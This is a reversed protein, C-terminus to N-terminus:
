LLTKTVNGSTSVAHNVAIGSSTTLTLLIDNYVLWIGRIWISSAERFSHFLFSYFLFIVIVMHCLFGGVNSFMIFHDASHVIRSLNQHRRRFTRMSGHFCGNKDVAKLFENNLRKFENFFVITLLLNVSLQFAWVPTILIYLCLMFLKLVFKTTGNISFLTGFPAMAFDFEGGTMFLLYWDLVAHLAILIWVIFTLMVAKKRIAEATAANVLIEHLVGDLRGSRCAIFCSIQMTACLVMHAMVTMKTILMADFRDSTSFTTALRAVNIWMLVLVCSSYIKLKNLRKSRKQQLGIEINEQKTDYSRLIKERLEPREFCENDHQNFYVGFLKMSRFLPSFSNFVPHVDAFTKDYLGTAEQDKSTSEKCSSNNCPTDTTIGPVFGFINGIKEKDREKAAYTAALASISHWSMASFLYKKFLV